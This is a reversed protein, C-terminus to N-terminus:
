KSSALAKVFPLDADSFKFNLLNYKTVWLFKDHDVLKIEGSVFSCIYGKSLITSHPYIHKNEMFAKLVLIEINLEERIERILCAEPSEDLEIKGGPFEWNGALQKDKSRRTIFIKDANYIIAAAVQVM